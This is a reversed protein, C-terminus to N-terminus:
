CSTQRIKWRRGTVNLNFIILRRAAAHGGGIKGDLALLVLQALLQRAVTDRDLRRM